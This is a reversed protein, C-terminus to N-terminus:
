QVVTRQERREQIGERTLPVSGNDITDVYANILDRYARESCIADLDKTISIIEDDSPDRPLYQPSLQIWEEGPGVPAEAQTQALGIPESRFRVKPPTGAVKFNTARFGQSLSGVRPETRDPTGPDYEITLSRGSKGITVMPEESLTDADYNDTSVMDTKEVVEKYVLSYTKKDETPCQIKSLEFNPNMQLFRVHKQLIPSLNRIDEAGAKLLSSPFEEGFKFFGLSTCRANTINLEAQSLSKQNNSFAQALCGQTISYFLGWSSARMAAVDERSLFVRSQAFASAFLWLISSTKSVREFLHKQLDLHNQEITNNSNYSWPKGGAVLRGDSNLPISLDKGILLRKNDLELHIPTKNWTAGHTQTWKALFKKDSPSAGIKLAEWFVGQYTRNEVLKKLQGQARSQDVKGNKSEAISPVGLIVAFSIILSFIESIVNKQIM